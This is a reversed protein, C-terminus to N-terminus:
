ASVMQNMLKPHLINGTDEYGYERPNPLCQVASSAQRWVVLRYYSRRIHLWFNNDTPPLKKGAMNLATIDGM